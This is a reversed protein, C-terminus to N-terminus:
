DFGADLIQISPKDAFWFENLKEDELLVLPVCYDPVLGPRFPAICTFFNAMQSLISVKYVKGAVMVVGLHTFKGVPDVIRALDPVKHYGVTALQRKFSCLTPQTNSLYGESQTKFQHIAIAM